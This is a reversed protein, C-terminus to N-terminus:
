IRVHVLEVHHFNFNFHTFAPLSGQEVLAVEASALSCDHGAFGVTCQCTNPAACEGGNLCPPDCSAAPFMVSYSWTNFKNM